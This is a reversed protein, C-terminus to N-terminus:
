QNNSELLKLIQELVGDVLTEDKITIALLNGKRKIQAYTKKGSRITIPKYQEAAALKPKQEVEAVAKTENIEGLALRNLIDLLQSEKAKALKAAADYGLIDPHQKLLSKASEPFSDYAFLQAVQSQSVGAGKALEEQSEKTIDRIEKFGLYKEYPALSSQFLNSYLANKVVRKADMDVIEAGVEKFDLQRLAELRNHGAVLEYMGDDIPRVVIKHILGNQAINEKLEKFQADSLSRKRGPVEVIKEIAIKQNLLDSKIQDLQALKKQSAQQITAPTSAIQNEIKKLAEERTLTKVQLNMTSLLKSNQAM